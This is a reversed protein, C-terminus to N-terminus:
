TKLGEYYVLRKSGKFVLITVGLLILFLVWALASAYGMNHFEFAQRYLNLVYFLTLDDPGGQTMVMAQVFVQFSAIIGMVLNYFILPSLMPLTVNWFKRVQGAGDITAAEYLSIPIGKLGALYLIMAGGVGWLSMGVFAPIAWRAADRGLWDPPTTHFIAALPRLLTNILGYDPNLLQMWLVGGVVSTVILSPVFYITRYVAIGRVRTNMLVAVGLAAIQGLPVALAVFWVTVRLSQRFREDAFLMQKYNAGGVGLADAMPTMASWKTFSLILSVVMPGATLALFGILWPLIFSFGARESARDLPGLKERRARMWLLAILTALAALTVSLILDWRLPRWQKVRLPSDLEAIWLREIDKANSMTDSQGLKISNDIKSRVLQEWEQQRPIQQIRAYAIADLFVKSNLKPLGPPELFDKSYAVSKLPPIALGLRSQEIAGPGGCLFKQLKFCEEPNKAKASMTWATYYIMSAQNKKETYPTPVVDWRFSTIQSYRPVMWRGIPGICGINGTFYEQGGRQIDGTPNYLFKDDLRGRKIFNLAEQARPEDLVVDRFDGGGGGFFDGGFTWIVNRLSDPWIQLFGGYIKRGAFEPQDSLATIKRCATEYEAWTWGDYPVKVGAREFLDLNVYMCTTTFDKPLGYLPGVGVRGTASDYRYVDLLIPFYDDYTAKNGAAIDKEILDDVPRILKLSAMDPLLDAPLYFVDPPTGAAMMTKLKYRYDNNGPNIRIIQVKPNERTYRDILKAVLADEGQDGWHLVTLTVPKEHRLRWRAVGRRGVDFFSWVVILTAALALLLRSARALTM